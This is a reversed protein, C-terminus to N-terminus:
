KVKKFEGENTVKLIIANPDRTDFVVHFGRGLYVFENNSIPVLKITNDRDKYTRLLEGNQVAYLIKKDTGSTSIYEGELLELHEIPVKFHIDDTSEGLSKLVKIGNENEPNLQISHKYNEVAKKTDGNALLAEAYSDFGNYAYPFADINLKFVTVANEYEEKTMYHYGLENLQSESFDYVDAQEKKLTAYATAIDEIGKEDIIQFLKSAISQTPWCDNGSSENSKWNMLACFMPNCINSGAGGNTLVIFGTQTAADIRFSAEWGINSGSHGIFVRSDNMHVSQYGLGYKWGGITTNPAPEMMQQVTKVPLVSNYKQHDKHQPLSAFAFRIFDELTTQFGAAAQVTFLEFDTPKGFRGYPIASRALIKEDIKFSSNTMGLPDIIHAQMFDEFKQESVEEIILQLLGFGGGSYEWQTGPELIIEVPGLGDNKGNLWEELTPLNDYSLGASVSSLSLGATHSLLRRVTVEDSDFESEPLHWRTLYKEVPTDLDIKGEQVLKMVGWAAVSKSISGVNFGTQLDVKVGNEIDAFGYGKQLVIEGNEIIAIAAGPISFDELMQPIKKDIEEVFQEVSKPKEQASLAIPVLFVILFTLNKIMTNVTQNNLLDGGVKSRHLSIVIGWKM